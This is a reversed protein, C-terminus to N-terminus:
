TEGYKIKSEAMMLYEEEMESNVVKDEYLYKQFGIFSERISKIDGLTEKADSVSKYKLELLGKIRTDDLENVGKAVYQELVFNLFAQKAKDYGKLRLEDKTARTIRPVIESHYAIYVLVDYLDSNQAKVLKKLEDLQAMSYGNESLEELLRKRTDPLLWIRRLEEESEFFKPLEAFLKRIFEDASMPKGDPAYFSTKVMSDLDLFKSKSLKIRM